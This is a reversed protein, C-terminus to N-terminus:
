VKKEINLLDSDTVGDRTVGISRPINITRLINPNNRRVPTHADTCVSPVILQCTAVSFDRLVFEDHNVGPTATSGSVILRAM